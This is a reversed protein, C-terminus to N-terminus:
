FTRKYRRVEVDSEVLQKVIEIKEEEKIVNYRSGPGFEEVVINQDDIILITFIDYEERDGEGDVEGM